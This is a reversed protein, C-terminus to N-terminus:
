LNGAPLENFIELVREDRIEIKVQILKCLKLKIPKLLKGDPFEVNIMSIKKLNPMLQCLNLINVSVRVKKLTLHTLHIGLQTLVKSLVRV